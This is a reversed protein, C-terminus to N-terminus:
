EIGTKYINYIMCNEFSLVSGDFAFYINHTGTIKEVPVSVTADGNEDPIIDAEAIVDGGLKDAHIESSQM